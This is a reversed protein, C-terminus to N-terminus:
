KVRKLYGKPNYTLIYKERSEDVIFRNDIKLFDEIASLPGDKLAAYFTDVTFIDLIGDEVILYSDKTVLDAYLELDKLVHEKSHCGDHIVLVKKGVCYKKVQNFTDRKSSDGKIKVIKKHEVKFRDWFLDIAVVIGKGMLEMLQAFFLTSGGANCGIEIIVDPKVEYIIEQYVWFDFPNKLAKHGFWTCKDFHINHHHYGLWESLTMNWKKAYDVYKEKILSIKSKLGVPVDM